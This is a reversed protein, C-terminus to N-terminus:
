FFEQAEQSVKDKIQYIPIVGKIYAAPSPYEGSMIDNFYVSDELIYISLNSYDVDDLQNKYNSIYESLSGWLCDPNVPEANNLILSKISTIDIVDQFIKGDNILFTAGRDTNIDFNRTYVYGERTLTIIRSNFFSVNIITEFDNGESSERKFAHRILTEPTPLTCTMDEDSDHEILQSNIYTRIATILLDSGAIPYEVSILKNKGKSATFIQTTLYDGYQKTEGKTVVVGSSTSKKKRSKQLDNGGDRLM